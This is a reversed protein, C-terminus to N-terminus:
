INKTFIKYILLYYLCWTLYNVIGFVYFIGGLRECKNGEELFYVFISFTNYPLAALLHLLFPGNVNITDKITRAVGDPLQVACQVTEEFEHGNRRFIKWIITGVIKLINNHLIKM